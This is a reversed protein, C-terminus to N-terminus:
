EFRFHTTWSAPDNGAARIMGDRQGAYGSEAKLYKGTSRNKITVYGGGVSTIQFQEATQYGDNPSGMARLMGDDGGPYNLEARILSKNLNSYDDGSVRANSAILYYSTNPVKDITFTEWRGIGDARARLMGELSGTFGLEASVLKNMHRSRIAVIGVYPDAAAAPVAVAVISGTVAVLCAM